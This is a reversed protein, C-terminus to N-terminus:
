EFRWSPKWGRELRTGMLRARVLEVPMAGGQLIADHFVRETMRGSTVHEHRLARFQLGGIMYAIQYLPPYSGNFSRRVEATANAREHGVRNVLLDIADDPTMTGMHFRLSFIIRAARHSRWFLMGVRDEPSQPFDLDWLRMEWYLAWGEMWFPTRFEQRHPMYRNMMFGQLHHGPILEHHVTARSFHPNNGRLSMLKDEATMEDTPYSVWLIEGGLFFPSVKQREPSLMEMRWVEKALPPVTVLNRSEVFQEAERELDRVLDIQKGPEVYTNKVKEVAARWDDGLGMDRAARRMEVECWAFEREAIRLLDEPGYPIMEFALEARLADTGIPDGIIPEDEGEKQGVIDRRIAKEYRLLSSDARRWPDLNWWTFAPDYGRYFAFWEDLTERLQALQGAARLAVIRTARSTDRGTPSEIKARASDVSRALAALTSAAERPQVTEMHRRSEMLGTIAGAFPVFQRMQGARRDTQDLLALERRLGNDLLHWDIRGEVDLRDYPWAAVRALWDTYFARFRASRAPSYPVAYRRALADRDVTYREVSDRMSQAQAPSACLAVLLTCSRWDGMMLRPDRSFM